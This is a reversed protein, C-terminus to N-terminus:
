KKTFNLVSSSFFSPFSSSMGFSFSHFAESIAFNHIDATTNACADLLIYYIFPFFFMKIWKNLVVILDIQVSHIKGPQFRIISRNQMFIQKTSGNFYYWIQHYHHVVFHYFNSGIKHFLIYFLKHILM